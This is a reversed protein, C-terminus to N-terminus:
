TTPPASMGRQGLLQYARRMLLPSVVLQVLTLATMWSLTTALVQARGDLGPAAYSSFLATALVDRTGIGQPTLPLGSIFLLPPILALADAFPVNVDFLFFPLWMGFFLLTMHPVRAAMVWLHGAIGLEFMPQLLPRDKLWRPATHLVVLYGVGGVLCVALTPVLWPLRGGNLPVALLGICVLCGFTTIYVVLTAGAVRWVRANYVKALFYTLWGQGVHHNVIAPLYSAGRLIVLEKWTVPCVTRVYAQRAGWTDLLLLGIIFAVALGALQLKPARAMAEGVAQLQVQSLAWGMLLVALAVPAIRQWLPSRKVEPPAVSSM